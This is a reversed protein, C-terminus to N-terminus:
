SPPLDFTFGLLVLGIIFRSERTEEGCESLVRFIAPSVVGPSVLTNVSRIEGLPGRGIHFPQDPVESPQRRKSVLATQISLYPPKWRRSDPMEKSRTLRSPGGFKHFKRSQYFKRLYTTLLRTNASDVHRGARYPV